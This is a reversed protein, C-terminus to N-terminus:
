RPGLLKVLKNYVGMVLLPSVWSGIFRAPQTRGMLELSLSVGMSCLSAFLFMHSPIKAAQQELLRTFSSDAHEARLVPPLEYERKSEASAPNVDLSM